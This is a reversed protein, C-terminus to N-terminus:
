PMKTNFQIPQHVYAPLKGTSGATGAGLGAGNGSGNPSVGFGLSDSM